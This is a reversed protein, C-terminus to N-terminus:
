VIGRFYQHVSGECEKPLPTNASILNNKLDALTLDCGYYAIREYKGELDSLTAEDVLAAKIKEEEFTNSIDNESGDLIISPEGFVVNTLQYQNSFENTGTVTVGGLLYKNPKTLDPTGDQSFLLNTALLTLTFFFKNFLRNM